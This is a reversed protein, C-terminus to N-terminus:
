DRLTCSGGKSIIKKCIANADSKSNVPGVHIYHLRENGSKETYLKGKLGKLAAYHKKVMIDWAQDYVKESKLKAIRIYYIKKEPNATVKTILNNKKQEFISKTVEKKIPEEIIITAKIVEEKLKAQSNNHPIKKSVISMMEKKSMPEEKSYSAVVAKSSQRGSIYDYIGKDMNAIEIGGPNEPKFKIQHNLKIIPLDKPDVTVVQTNYAYWSLYVFFFLAFIVALFKYKFYEDSQSSQKKKTIIDM